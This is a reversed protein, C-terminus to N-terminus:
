IMWLDSNVSSEQKNVPILRGLVEALKEQVIPKTLFGDFGETMFLHETEAGANATLAVIPIKWLKPNDDSRIARATEIGDMEPMLHDMLILDFESDEHLLYIAEKGSACPVVQAKYIGLLGMAVEINVVADDVVLIRANPMMFPPKFLKKEEEDATIKNYDYPIFGTAKQPIRVTFTAGEGYVSAVTIEGGMLEALSKCISLGLGTGVINKNKKKDAQTYAGFLTNISEPPIGRGTDQVVFTLFGGEPCDKKAYHVSLTVSGSDTFKVANNLLNIVIQRIRMGDGYYEDPLDIQIDRIFKVGKKSLALENIAIAERLINHMQYEDPVIDFKGAELKSFDLIENIIGLLNGSSNQIHDAYKAVRDSIGEEQLILESFGSIANMPSRIEHSMSSLFESKSRNAKVAHNKSVYLSIVKAIERVANRNETGDRGEFQNSKFFLYGGDEGIDPFYCKQVRDMQALEQATIVRNLYSTEDENKWEYTCVYCTNEGSDFSHIEELIAARNLGILFSVREFLADLADEQDPASEFLNFALGVLDNQYGLSGSGGDTDGIEPRFITELEELSDKLTVTVKLHEMSNDGMYMDRIGNRIRDQLAEMASASRGVVHLVYANQSFRIALDSSNMEAKILDAIRKLIADAFMRGSTNRIEDANDLEVYLFGHQDMKNTAEYKWLIREAVMLRYFGTLSDKGAEELYSLETAKQETINRVKGVIQTAEDGVYLVNGEILLWQPFDGGSFVLEISEDCDSDLYKQLIEADAENFYTGESVRILFNDIVTVDNKNKGEEFDEPLLPGYYKVKDESFIYEFLVDKSSALALSYREQEQSLQELLAQEQEMHKRTMTALAVYIVTMVAFEITFGMVNAFWLETTSNFYNDTRQAARFYQSVVMMLYDFGCISLTLKPDIYFLSGVAGLTLTIYIGIYPNVAFLSVALSVVYINYYKQFESNVNLKYLIRPSLTCFTTIVGVAMLERTSILFVNLVSLIWLVPVILLFFILSKSIIDNIKIDNERFFQQNM